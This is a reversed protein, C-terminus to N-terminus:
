WWLGTLPIPHRLSRSEFRLGLCGAHSSIGPRVVTSGPLQLGACAPLGVLVWSFSEPFPLLRCCAVPALRLHPPWRPGPVPQWSQRLIRVDPTLRINLQRRLWLM